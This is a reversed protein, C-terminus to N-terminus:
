GHLNKGKLESQVNIPINSIPVDGISTRAIVDASGTLDIEVSSQLTVGAFLAAYAANNLSKLPINTFAIDM